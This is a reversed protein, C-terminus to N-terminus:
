YEFLQIEDSEIVKDIEDIVDEKILSVSDIINNLDDNLWDSNWIKISDDNVRQCLKEDYEIERANILLLISLILFLFFFLYNANKFLVYFFNNFGHLFPILPEFIESFDFESLYDLM